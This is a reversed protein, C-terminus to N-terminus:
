NKELADIRKAFTLRNKGSESKYTITDTMERVLFLGLGGIEREELNETLLPTAPEFPDFPHGTDEIHVKIDSHHKEITIRIEGPEMGAYGHMVLNACVEDAALKISDTDAENIRFLRCVEITFNRFAPLNEMKASRSFTHSTVEDSKQKRIILLTLDDSRYEEKGHQNIEAEMHKVISFASPWKRSLQHRFREESYFNGRSDRAETFGDTYSILVDGPMFDLIEVEYPLDDSFGIAPGTPTLERKILGMADVQLPADHGANVYYMRGSRPDLMCLVLTAFMNSQSHNAIVYRNVSTALKGLLEEPSEFDHIEECKSRILSRLLVMFLAAGVGKDCVDAIAYLYLPTDGIRFMDYFDGSVQRAARFYTSVEWNQIPPSAQPFFGSQIEKGIELDREALDLARETRAHLLANEIAPAVQGAATEALETQHADHIKVSRDLVMGMIGQVKGRSVLPVILPSGPGTFGFLGSVVEQRLGEQIEKRDTSETEEVLRQLYKQDTVKQIRGIHIAAEPVVSYFAQVKITARTDDFLAIGACQLPLIRTLEKCSTDLIDKLDLSYNLKVALRNISALEGARQEAAYKAARLIEEAKVRISIDRIIGRTGVVKGEEVMPVAVVESSFVGGDKTRYRIEIPNSPRGTALMQRFHKLLSFQNDKDVLHRFHKGILEDKDRYRTSEVLKQNVYILFGTLNAEFYSDQLTDLVARHATTRNKLELEAKRQETIDNYFVLYGYNISGAFFPQVFIEMDTFSGNQRIRQGTLYVPNDQPNNAPEEIRRLIESSLFFQTFSKGIVDETAYGFLRQFAENVLTVKKQKNVVAIAIPAQQLLAHLLDKEYASERDAEFKQTINRIISRTGTIIGGEILPTVAAEGVFKRGNRGSFLVKLLASPMRSELLSRYQYSIGKEYKEKTFNWIYKGQVMDRDEYGLNHMFTLNAFTIVGEGDTEVYGDYLNDLFKLYELRTSTLEPGAKM